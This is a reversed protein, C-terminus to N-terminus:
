MMASAMFRANASREFYMASVSKTFTGIAPRMELFYASSSRLPILMSATPELIGAPLGSGKTPEPPVLWRETMSLCPLM